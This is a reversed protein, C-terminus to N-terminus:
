HRVTARRSRSTATSPAPQIATCAVFPAAHEQLDPDVTVLRYSISDGAQAAVGDDQVRYVFSPPDFLGAAVRETNIRVASGDAALRELHWGLVPVAASDRLWEVSVGGGAQQVVHLSVQAEGGAQARAGAGSAGIMFVALMSAAACRLKMGGAAAKKNATTKM